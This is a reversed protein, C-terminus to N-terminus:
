SLKLSHLISEIQRVYYAKNQKKPAYVFGEIMILKNNIEDKLFYDVFPGGMFYGKVKWLGRMEIIDNKQEMLRQTQVPLRNETTMYSNNNPGPVYQKSVFNRLAILDDTNLSKLTDLNFEHIIISQITELKDFRFWSFGLTDKVLRYGQPLTVNLNYKDKIFRATSADAGSINSQSMTNIDGYYLHNYIQQQNDRFMKVFKENGSFVVEVVQQNSAWKDVEYSIQEKKIISHDLLLINRYSKFHGSFKKNDLFTIKFTPEAQPLCPFEQTAFEVVRQKVVMNNLSPDMVILLEGPAGISRIKIDGSQTKCAVILVVSLLLFLINSKIIISRYSLYSLAKM